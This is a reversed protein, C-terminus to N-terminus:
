FSLLVRSLIRNPLSFLQVLTGPKLSL